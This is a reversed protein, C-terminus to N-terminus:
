KASTNLYANLKDFSQNWGRKTEKTMDGAPIGIHKLTMRTKSNIEDLQLVIEMTLPFDEEFGYYSAPVLNGESDAFSDTCVLKSPANIKKYTGTSWFEKGEPSRMCNLYSGGKRLDISAHPCSFDKPGWWQKIKGPHTWAEWVLARPADFHRTIVLKNTTDTKKM